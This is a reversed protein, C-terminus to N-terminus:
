SIEGRDISIITPVPSLSEASSSTVQSAVESPSLTPTTRVQGVVSARRPSKKSSVLEPKFTHSEAEELREKEEGQRKIKELNARQRQNARSPGPESHAALHEFVDDVKDAEILPRFLDTGKNVNVMLELNEHPFFIQAISIKEGLVTKEEINKVQGLGYLPHCVPTSSSFKM